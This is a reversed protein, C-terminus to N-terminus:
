DKSVMTVMPALRDSLTAIGGEGRKVAAGESECVALFFPYQPGFWARDHMLM